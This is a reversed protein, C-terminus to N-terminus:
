KSNILNKIEKLYSDIVIRRDFEKEIKKRSNEGMTNREEYTSNIFKIVKEYLEEKSKQTFLYGNYEEDIIEKCGPINSAILPKSMAGAELLVNSMGEHYSPNIICDSESIEKRVDNSIGLYNINESENLVKKYKQEQITGILSFEINEYEKLIRKAVQLYEEIGKEKMIRGIYLFKIKNEKGKKVPKFKSINVGSGPILITKNENIMNNQLFFSLNSENQFFVRSSRKASYKYFNKILSKLKGSILASGLGTINMIVPINNKYAVNTGYLNPKITYTLVLDPKIEKIIRNYRRILKFDEIPNIGRRDIDTYIHYAGLKVLKEVNKDGKDQPVSFYMVYNEKILEEILEARFHFLGSTSNALILIKEM